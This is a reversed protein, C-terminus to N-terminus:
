AIMGGDGGGGLNKTPFFSYAAAVSSFGPPKGYHEAGIAQCADEVIWLGEEKAFASISSMDAM